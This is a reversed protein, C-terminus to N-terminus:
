NSSTSEARFRYTEPCPNRNLVNIQENGRQLGWFNTIPIESCETYIYIYIYYLDTASCSRLPLVSQLPQQWIVTCPAKHNAFRKDRLRLKMKRLRIRQKEYRTAVWNDECPQTSGTGSGVSRSFMELTYSPISGPVEQFNYMNVM